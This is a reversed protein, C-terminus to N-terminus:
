CRSYITSIVSFYIIDGFNNINRLGAYVIALVNKKIAAHVSLNIRSNGRARFHRLYM